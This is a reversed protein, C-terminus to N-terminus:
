HCRWRFVALEREQRVAGEVAAGEFEGEVPGHVAVEPAALREVDAAEEFGVLVDCLRSLLLYADVRLVCPCCLLFPSNIRLCLRASPGTDRQLFDDVLCFLEQLSPLM